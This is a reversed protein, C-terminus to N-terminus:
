IRVESDKQSELLIMVHVNNHLKYGADPGLYITNQSPRSRALNDM